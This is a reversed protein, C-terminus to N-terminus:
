ESRGHSSFKGDFRWGTSPRVPVLRARAWHEDRDRLAESVLWRATELTANDIFDYVLSNMRVVRLSRAYHHGPRLPHLAALCHQTEPGVHVRGERDQSPSWGPSLGTPLRRQVTPLIPGGAHANVAGLTLACLEIRSRNCAVSTTVSNGKDWTRIDPFARPMDPHGTGVPHSWPRALRHPRGRVRVPWGAAAPPAPTGVDPRPRGSAWHISTAQTTTEGDCRLFFAQSATTGENPMCHPYRCHLRCREDVAAVGPDPSKNRPNQTRDGRPRNRHHGSRSAAQFPSM